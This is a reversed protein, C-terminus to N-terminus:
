GKRYILYLVFLSIAVISSITSTVISTYDNILFGHYLWLASIIVGFVLTYISFDDVKKTTFCKYLQPINKVCTLYILVISIIKVTEM